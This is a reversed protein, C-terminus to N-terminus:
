STDRISQTDRVGSNYIITFVVHCPELAQTLKTQKANVEIPETKEAGNTFLL